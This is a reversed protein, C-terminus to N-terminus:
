RATAQCKDVTLGELDRKAQTEPVESLVLRSRAFGVKVDGRVYYSHGAQVTLELGTEKKAIEMGSVRATLNLSGPAAQYQLYRENSLKCLPHGNVYITYNALAAILQGGRYVYVTATTPPAPTPRSATLLLLGAALPWTIPKKM